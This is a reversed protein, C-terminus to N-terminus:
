SRTEKAALVISAVHEDVDFGFATFTCLAKIRLWTEPHRTKARAVRVDRETV